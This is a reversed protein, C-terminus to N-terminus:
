VRVRWTEVASRARKATKSVEQAVDDEYDSEVVWVGDGGMQFLFTEEELADFKADAIHPLRGKAAHYDLLCQVAVPVSTRGSPLLRMWLRRWLLMRADASWEHMATHRLALRTWPIDALERAGSARVAGVFVLTDAPTATFLRLRPVFLRPGLGDFAKSAWARLLAPTLPIRLHTWYQELVRKPRTIQAADRLATAIAAFDLTPHILRTDPDSDPDADADADADAADDKLWRAHAHGLVCNIFQRTEDASWSSVDVLTLSLLERHRNRCVVSSRGLKEGITVWQSGYIDHMSVLRQDEARTWPQSEFTAPYLRRVRMKISGFCRTPLADLLTAWLRRVVKLSEDSDVLGRLVPTHLAEVIAGDGLHNDKKYEEVFNRLINDEEKTWTRRTGAKSKSISNELMRKSDPQTSAMAGSASSEGKVPQESLMTQGDPGAASLPRSVTGRTRQAPPIAPFESPRSHFTIFSAPSKAMLAKLGADRLSSAPRGPDAPLTPDIAPPPPISIINPTDNRAVNSNDQDDDFGDGAFTQDAYDSDDGDNGNIASPGGARTAVFAPPEAFGSSITGKSIRASKPRAVSGPKGVSGELKKSSYTRKIAPTRVTSSFTAAPAEFPDEQSDDVIPDDQMAAQPTIVAPIEDSSDDSSEITETSLTSVIAAPQRKRASASADAPKSKSKPTSKAPTRVPTKVKKLTSPSAPDSMIDNGEDESVMPSGLTITRPAAKKRSKKAVPTEAVSIESAIQRSPSTISNEEAPKPATTTSKRKRKPKQCSGVLSDQTTEQTGPIVDSSDITPMVTSSSKRGRTKKIPSSPIQSSQELAQSMTPLQSSFSAQSVPPPQASPPTSDYVQAHNNVANFSRTPTAKRISGSLKSTSKASLSFAHPPSKPVDYVSKDAIPSSPVPPSSRAHLLQQAAYLSRRPKQKRKSVPTVPTAPAAPQELAVSTPAPLPAPNAMDVDADESDEDLLPPQASPPTATIDTADTAPEQTPTADIEMRDELHPLPAPSSPMVHVTGSLEPSPERIPVTRSAKPTSELEPSSLREDVLGIEPGSVATASLPFSSESLISPIEQSEPPPSPTAAVVKSRPTVQASAHGDDEDEEDEQDLAVDPTEAVEDDGAELRGTTELEPSEDRGGAIPTDEPELEEADSDNNTHMQSLDVDMQMDTSNFIPLDIDWNDDDDEEEQDRSSEQKTALEVSDEAGVIDDEDLTTISDQEVLPQSEEVARDVAEKKIEPADAMDEVSPLVTDQAIEINISSEKSKSQTKKSQQQQPQEQSAKKKEMKRLRARAKKSLGATGSPTAAPTQSSPAAATTTPAPARVPTQPTLPQSPLAGAAISNRRQAKLLKKQRKSLPEGAPTTQQSPPLQAPAPAPVSAPAPVVHTAIDENQFKRKKNKKSPTPTTMQQTPPQRVPAPAASPKVVPVKKARPTLTSTSTPAISDPEEAKVFSSDTSKKKSLRRIPKKGNPEFIVSPASGTTALPLPPAAASAAAKSKSKPKPTSALNSAQPPVSARSSTSVSRITPIRPVPVPTVRGPFSPPPIPTTSVRGAHYTRIPPTATQAPTLSPSASNASVDAKKKKKVALPTVTGGTINRLANMAPM